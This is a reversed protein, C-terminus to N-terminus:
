AALRQGAPELWLYDAREAQLMGKLNLHRIQPWEIGLADRPRFASAPFEVVNRLEDVILSMLPRANDDALLLNVPRQIGDLHDRAMAFLRRLKPLTTIEEIHLADVAADIGESDRMALLRAALAHITQHPTDFQALIARLEEDSTEFSDYWRGFACQHPDTAKAFPLGKTISAKLAEIWELHEQERQMLSASLERASVRASKQGLLMALDYVPVYGTDTGFLGILGPESVPVKRVEHKHESLYLVRAVDVACTSEGVGFTLVHCNDDSNGGPNGISKGHPTGHSTSSDSV